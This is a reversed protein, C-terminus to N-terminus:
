KHIIPLSVTVRTGVGLESEILLNGNLADITESVISLGLGSGENATRALDARFFPETVFPLDKSSIGIGTDKIQIVAFGGQQKLSVIVAGTPKTYKIGNEVINEFARSLSAYDGLITCEETNSDAVFSLKVGKETGVSRLKQIVSKLLEGIQIASEGDIAMQKKSTLALLGNAIRTLSDIEAINETLQRVVRPSLNKEGRLVVENGSRMVSLPTRLEHAADALFRRERDRATRIPRLAIETLVSVCVCIVLFILVDAIIFKFELINESISEPQGLKRAQSSISDSLNGLLMRFLITSLIVVTAILASVFVYGLTLQVRVRFLLDKNWKTALAVYQKYIRETMM